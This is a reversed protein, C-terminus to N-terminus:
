IMRMVAIKPTHAGAGVITQAAAIATDNQVIVKFDEENLGRIIRTQRNDNSTLTINGQTIAGAVDASTFATCRFRIFYGAQSNVTTSAWNSPAKFIFSYIGALTFGVTGDTATLAVWASGNWYEPILTSIDTKATGINFYVKNFPEYQSCIYLMDGVEAAAHGPVAVDNATANTFATTVDSFSTGSDDYYFVKTPNTRAPQAPIALQTLLSYEELSEIYNKISVTLSTETSENLISIKHKEPYGEAGTFFVDKGTNIPDSNAFAITKQEDVITSVQVSSGFNNVINGEEDTIVVHGAKKDGVTEGTQVIADGTSSDVVTNHAATDLLRKETTEGENLITATIETWKAQARENATKYAETITSQIAGWINAM